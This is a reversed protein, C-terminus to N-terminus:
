GSAQSLHERLKKRALALSYKIARDSCGELQALAKVSLGELCHLLFRRRAVLPLRELAERLEAREVQRMLAQEPTEVRGESPLDCEGMDELHWSHRSERRELRWHERQLDDLFNCVERPAEVERAGYPDTKITVVCRDGDGEIVRWEYFRGM